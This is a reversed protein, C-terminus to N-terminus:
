AADGLLGRRKLLPEILPDRGRFARYVDMSDASGGKALLGDRFADGSDRRLGGRETLWDVTDADLVESWLYSYYGASYAAGSFIHAFYPTRYRPPVLPTAVGARELADAEFAMVDTVAEAEEVSLTHWALDLLTAALYEVTSFGKNFQEAAHLRDIVEQPLRDGTIHHRAYHELVEPWLMWVENVQSPYEVFDRPVRTGAFKPYQVASFLTHLAHGFEHFMTRVEDLTLLTPEGEPARNINLNNCVIPSTGFLGSQAVLANAWAGGRKSPRTFFDGIFLGLPSGDHDFVEFVRADQHYASLDSRESFRLGYLQGAAYFVGDHLVRELEFYPRLESEDIAYRDRRLRETCYAWDWPQLTYDNGIVAQLDDAEAAANAMAPPVVKALMEEVAAVSRATNDSINYAAHHEYGLLRAREARLRVIRLVLGTTDNDGGVGRGVSANHLRERLDRDHLAALQPQGTPLILNLAYKGDLGRDRGAVTAAAIADSSLGDLAAEDDVIVARAKMEDRVLNGFETALGALEANVARLREHQEATLEAGARVFETRYRELLWAQEGDLGLEGRRAYLDNIRSYLGADLMIADSHASLRPVVEAEIEQLRDSTHSSTLTFFAASTRQLIRGSRELAVLTNDFTPAAPEAVIAAVEARQEEMGREFAPLYHEVDIRDFPPLQYPLDSPEFFPNDTTM